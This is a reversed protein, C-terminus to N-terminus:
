FGLHRPRLPTEVSLTTTRAHGPVNTPLPLENTPVLAPLVFVVPLLLVMM